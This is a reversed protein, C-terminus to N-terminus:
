LYLEKPHPNGGEHALWKWGAEANNGGYIPDGLMAEFIYRMMSDIWNEGWRHAAISKLVEQRKSEAVKIYPVQFMEISEENLWKIGNRMFEKDEENIRSHKFIINMYKSTNIQLEKAKPFLDDQVVKITDSLRQVGLINCGNTLVIATSLFGVKLFTRRKSLSTLSIGNKRLYTNTQEKM